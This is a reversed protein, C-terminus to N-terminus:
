MYAVQYLKETELLTQNNESSNEPKHSTSLIQTRIQPIHIINSKPDLDEFLPIQTQIQPIAILNELITNPNM